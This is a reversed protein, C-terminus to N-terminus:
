TGELLRLLGASGTRIVKGRLALDDSRRLLGTRFQDLVIALALDFDLDGFKLVFEAFALVNCL